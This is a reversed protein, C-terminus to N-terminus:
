CSPRAVARRPARRRGQGRIAPRPGSSLPSVIRGELRKRGFFRQHGPPFDDITGFVTYGLKEYFGRAQFSYTDLWM